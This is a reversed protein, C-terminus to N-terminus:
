YYIRFQDEKKKISLLDGLYNKYNDINYMLSTYKQAIGWYNHQKLIDLGLNIKFFGFPALDTQTINEFMLGLTTKDIINTFGKSFTNTLIYFYASEKDLCIIGACSGGNYIPNSQFKKALDLIGLCEDNTFYESGIGFWRLKIHNEVLKPFLGANSKKHYVHRIRKLDSESLDLEQFLNLEFANSEIELLGFMLQSNKMIRQLSKNYIEVLQYPNEIEFFTNDKIDDFVTQTSEGNTGFYQGWSVSNRIEEVCYINKGVDTALIVSAGGIATGTKDAHVHLIKPPNYLESIASSDLEIENLKNITDMLCDLDNLRETETLKNIDITNGLDSLMLKELTVVEKQSILDELYTEYRARIMIIRPDAQIEEWNQLRELGKLGLDIRFWSIPSIINKETLRFMQRLNETDVTFTREDSRATINDTLIIFNAAGQATCVIGSVNGEYSYIASAIDRMVKKKPLLFYPAIQGFFNIDVFSGQKINPFSNAERRYKYVQLLQDIDETSLEVDDFVVREFANGEFSVVGFFLLRQNMIKEVATVIREIMVNPDYIAASDEHKMTIKEIQDAIAKEKWFEGWSLESFLDSVVIFQKDEDMALICQAGGLEVFDKTGQPLLAAPPYYLKVM